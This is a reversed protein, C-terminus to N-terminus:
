DAALLEQYLGLLKVEETRWSYHERVAQQGREGMEVAIAPNDLLQRLAAAAQAPDAPDVCFGCRAGDVINRYLPFGSVVVPLGLGMYEFLKTPYSERYNPIDALLALGGRCGALVRWAERPELRGHFRVGSLGLRAVEAALEARHEATAPGICELAVARGEAQLIALAQLMVRSGRLRTVSGLYGVAPPETKATAIRALEELRPLNEVVVGRRIWPYERAYSQEAFVVALGRLWRRLGWGVGLSVLPRLAAPLWPKTLMDRVVNEHMDYIVRKGRKALQAMKPLLEPDHAHYIDADEVRCREWALRTLRTMRDRRDTPAPLARVEIGDVTEDCDHQAILVVRYGAQRLSACEKYFIRSDKLPHVTTVHVVTTM